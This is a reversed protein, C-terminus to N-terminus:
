QFPTGVRFDDMMPAKVTCLAIWTEDEALDHRLFKAATLM